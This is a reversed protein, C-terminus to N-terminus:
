EVQYGLQSNIPDIIGTISQKEQDSLKQRWLGVYNADINQNAYEVMPKTNRLNIFESIHNLSQQPSQIFDEYSVSIYDSDKELQHLSQLTRSVCEAWQKACVELLDHGQMYTQIGKFEPGWIPLHSSIGFKYKCREVMKRALYPFTKLYPYTKIKKLLIPKAQNKSSVSSANWCGRASLAVDRGDRYLHIFKAEPFVARVFEVRLTNSVTKELVFVSNEHKVHNYIYKKIFRSNGRNLNNVTLEDHQNYNGYKWVYNIDYPISSLGPHQALVDRFLKSGSRAASLIIIIKKQNNLISNVRVHM